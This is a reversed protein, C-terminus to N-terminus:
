SHHDKTSKREFSFDKKQKAKAHISGAGKNAYDVARTVRPTNLNLGDKSEIKLKVKQAKEHRQMDRMESDYDDAEGFMNPAVFEFEVSTIQGENAKVFDWFRESPM